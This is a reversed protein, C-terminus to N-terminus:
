YRSTFNKMKRGQTLLKFTFFLLLKVMSNTVQLLKFVKLKSNTVLLIYSSPALTSKKVWKITKKLKMNKKSFYLIQLKRVSNIGSM